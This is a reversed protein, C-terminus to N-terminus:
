PIPVQSDDVFPHPALSIYPQNGAAVQEEFDEDVQLVLRSRPHPGPDPPEPDSPVFEVEEEADAIAELLDLVDPEPDLNAPELHPKNEKPPFCM